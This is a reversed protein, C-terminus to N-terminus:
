HKCLKNGVPPEINEVDNILNLEHVSLSNFIKELNSNLFLNNIDKLFAQTIKSGNIIHSRELSVHFHFVRETLTAIVLSVATLLYFAVVFSVRRNM